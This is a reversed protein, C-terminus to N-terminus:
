KKRIALLPKLNYVNHSKLFLYQVYYYYLKKFITLVSHDFVEMYWNYITVQIILLNELHSLFREAWLLKLSMVGSVLYHIIYM